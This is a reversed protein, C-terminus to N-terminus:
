DKQEAKALIAAAREYAGAFSTNAENPDMMVRLADVLEHHCNVARVILARDEDSCGIPDVDQLVLSNNADASVLYRERWMWPLPTHSM